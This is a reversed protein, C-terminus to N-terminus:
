ATVAMAEIWRSYASVRTNINPYRSTGCGSTWSYVGVMVGNHLLPSGTDGQCQGRVGVDLWGACLMNSTVSFNEEAYRSVCTQQDNVWIQVQRLEPSFPSSVSTIGWGIAWVPQNNALPYSGGAIYAAQVNQGFAINVSTRLVAIDNVRTATLFDSHVTIRRILYVIGQRNSYSSGVRARWWLMSDVVNNTVFCSAASLIASTSIITGGCAQTFPLTGTSSLLSTAFPYTRIDAVTGGSIRMPNANSTSFVCIVSFVILLNM